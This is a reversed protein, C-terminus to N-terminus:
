LVQYYFDSQYPISYSIDTESSRKRRRRHEPFFHLLMEENIKDDETLKRDKRYINSWCRNLYCWRARRHLALSLQFLPSPINLSIFSFLVM